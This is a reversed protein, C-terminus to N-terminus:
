FRRKPCVSITRAATACLTAPRAQTGARDGNVTSVFRPDTPRSRASSPCCCCAPTSITRASRRRSPAASRTGPRKWCRATSAARRARGLLRRSRRARSAGRDGGAAPLRGLVDRGFPHPHAQARPIGLHRRRARARAQRGDRRAARAPPVPKRRGHAAPAPRLVDADGRPDRQWLHRAPEAGGGCQRHAGARRRSLGEPRRRHAGRAPRDVRHQLGAAARRTHGSVITLIYSIYDEMTRTAGIRNLAHVVFYADRLWCFRYDWTRGSGPAEPISTTQAAIIAGTEEFSSLKLTIAARIVADQWEYSIALRRMWEQWYDRTRDASNAAPPPSIARSRRTPASCWAAAPAVARVAVRPRYLRAARRHHAPDHRQRRHLPHPQQRVRARM